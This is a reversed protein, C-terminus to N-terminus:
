AVIPLVRSLQSSAVLLSCETNELIMSRGSRSSGRLGAQCISLSATPQGLEFPMAIANMRNIDMPQYGQSIQETEQLPYKGVRTLECM